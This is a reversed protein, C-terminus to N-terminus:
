KPEPAPAPPPMSGGPSSGQNPARPEVARYTADPPAGSGTSMTLGPRRPLEDAMRRAQVGVAASVNPTQALTTVFRIASWTNQYPLLELARLRVQESVTPHRVVNSLIEEARPHRMAAIARVAARALLPNPDLCLQALPNLARPDGLLGLDEIAQTRVELPAPEFAWTIARMLGVDPNTPPAPCVLEPEEKTSGIAKSPPTAWAALPFLCLSVALRVCMRNM